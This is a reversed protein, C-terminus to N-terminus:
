VDPWDRWAHMANGHLHSGEAVQMVKLCGRLTIVDVVLLSLCLCIHMVHWAGSDKIGLKAMPDVDMLEFAVAAV